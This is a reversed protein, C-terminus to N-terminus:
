APICSVKWKEASNKGFDKHNTYKYALYRVIACAEFVSNDGDTLVPVEGHPNLKLFDESKHEGVVLAVVYLSLKALIKPM